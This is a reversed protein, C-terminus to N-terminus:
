CVLVGLVHHVGEVCMCGLVRHVGEVCTCVWCVISARLVSTEEVSVGVVCKQCTKCSPTQSYPPPGVHVTM